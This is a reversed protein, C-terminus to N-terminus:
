FFANEFTPKEPGGGWVFNGPDACPNSLDMNENYVEVEQYKFALNPYQMKDFNFCHSMEYSWIIPYLTDVVCM